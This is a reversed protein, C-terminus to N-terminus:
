FIKYSSHNIRARNGHKSIDYVSYYTTNEPEFDLYVVTSEDLSENLKYTNNISFRFYEGIFKNQHPFANEQENAMGLFIPMDVYSNINKYVGESQIEGNIYMKFTNNGCNKVISITTKEEVATFNNSRLFKYEDEEWWGFNYVNNLGDFFLGLHKGPRGWICHTHPEEEKKNEKNGKIDPTFTVTVCFDHETFTNLDATILNSHNKIPLDLVDDFGVKLSM